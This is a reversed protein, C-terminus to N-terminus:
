HIFKEISKLGKILEAKEPVRQNELIYDLNSMALNVLLYVTFDTEKLGTVKSYEASFIKRLQIDFSNQGLPLARIQQLESRHKNILNYLDKSFFSYSDFQQDFRRESNMGSFADNFYNLNQQVLNDALEYINDYHSYFTTRDILSEKALKAITIDNFNTTQLLNIFTMQILRETREFRLDAM